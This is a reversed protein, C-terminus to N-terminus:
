RASARWLRIARRSQSRKSLGCSGTLPSRSLVSQWSRLPAHCPRLRHRHDQTRGCTESFTMLCANKWAFWYWVSCTGSWGSPFPFHVVLAHYCHGVVRTIRAVTKKPPHLGHKEESSPRPCCSRAGSPARAGAAPAQSPRPPARPRLPDAPHRAGQHRLSKKSAHAKPIGDEM